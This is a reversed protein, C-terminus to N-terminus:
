YGGMMDGEPNGKVAGEGPEAMTEHLDTKWDKKDGGEGTNYEVEIDGDADKGVVRFELVDGANISEPDLYQSLHQPSIFFTDERGGEQPPTEAPHESEEPMPSGAAMGPEEAENYKPMPM